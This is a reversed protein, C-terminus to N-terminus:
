PCSVHGKSGTKLFPTICMDHHVRPKIAIIFSLHSKQIALPIEKDEPESVITLISGLKNTGLEELPWSM